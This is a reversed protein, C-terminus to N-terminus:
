FKGWPHVRDRLPGRRSGRRHLSARSDHGLRYRRTMRSSTPHKERSAFCSGSRTFYVPRRAAPLARTNKSALHSRIPRAAHHYSSPAARRPFPHDPLLTSSRRSSTAAKASGLKTGRIISHGRGRRRVGRIKESAKSRKRRRPYCNSANGDISEFRSREGIDLACESTDM